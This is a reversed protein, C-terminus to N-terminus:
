YIPRPLANLLLCFFLLPPLRSEFGRCGRPLCTTVSAFVVQELFFNTVLANFRTVERQSNRERITCVIPLNLHQKYDIKMSLLVPLCCCINPSKMLSEFLKKPTTYVVISSSLHSTGLMSRQEADSFFCAEIRKEGPKLFCQFRQM